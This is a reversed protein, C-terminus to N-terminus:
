KKPPNNIIMMPSKIRAKQQANNLGAQPTQLVPPPLPMPAPMPPENDMRNGVIGSPAAGVRNRAPADAARAGMAALCLALTVCATLLYFKRLMPLM